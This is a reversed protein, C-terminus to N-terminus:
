KGGLPNPNKFLQTWQMASVPDAISGDDGPAPAPGTPPYFATQPVIWSWQEGNVPVYEGGVKNDPPYFVTFSKFYDQVAVYAPVAYPYPLSPSDVDVSPNVAGSTLKSIPECISYQFTNDLAWGGSSITFPAEIEWFNTLQGMMQYGRGEAVAFDSPTDIGYTMTMGVAGNSSGTYLGTLTYNAPGSTLLMTGYVQKSDINYQATVMGIANGNPDKAMASAIITEGGGTTSFWSASLGPTTFGGPLANWTHSTPQTYNPVSPATGGWNVSQVLPISTGGGSLSVAWVASILPGSQQLYKGATITANIYQGVLCEDKGGDITPNAGNPNIGGSVNLTVPTPTM